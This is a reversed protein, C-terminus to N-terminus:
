FDGAGRHHTLKFNLRHYTLKFNLWHHTLKFNLRRAQEGIPGCAPRSCPLNEFQGIGRMGHITFGLCFVVAAITSVIAAITLKMGCEADRRRPTEANFLKKSMPPVGM